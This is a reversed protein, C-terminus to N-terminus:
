NELASAARIVTEEGFAPGVFQMGV